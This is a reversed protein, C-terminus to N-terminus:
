VNCEYRLRILGKQSSQKKDKKNKIDSKWKQRRLTRFDVQARTM